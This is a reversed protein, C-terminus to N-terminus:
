EVSVCEIVKCYQSLRGMIIILWYIFYLHRMAKNVGIQTNIPAILNRNFKNKVRSNILFFFCNSKILMSLGKDTELVLKNLVVHRIFRNVARPLFLMTDTVSGVGGPCLDTGSSHVGPQGTVVDTM